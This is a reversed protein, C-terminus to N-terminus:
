KRVFYELLSLDSYRIYNNIDAKEVLGPSNQQVLMQM